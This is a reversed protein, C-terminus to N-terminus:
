GFFYITFTKTNAVYLEAPENKDCSRTTIWTKRSEGVIIEGFGFGSPENIM